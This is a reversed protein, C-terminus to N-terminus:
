TIHLNLNDLLKKTKKTFETLHWTENIKVKFIYKLHSLFDAVSFKSLLGKKRLLNYIKYNLMLSIHNIFAWTELSKENQMYSKDQELLNKLFDFSQEIEGREKYLFYIEKPSKSVNTKIAISGFKYQNEIFGDMSYGDINNEINKLYQKEENNKLDSDLFVVTEHVRYHWIPRENFMFYGDFDAKNGIKLKDSNFLSSNRKLPVIYKIGSDNLMNFNAESGFGKDAVVTADQLGSEVISLKFASIDRINGPIIRYYGPMKKECGFAYLLNIQPNYDGHANYGRRNINMKGSKSIIGTGDFLIHQNGSIFHKMFSVMKGRNGGFNRLFESLNKGSLKLDKFMESFFSNIYLHEVRKFPCHEIVRLSAITFILSGQEGFTKRLEDLIDAGLDSLVRPAGYTKATIPVEIKPSKEKPSILGEETIRGLYKNTIKQARGKEKNWISSVAYLYYRGGICSINTGKQKHRNVWEPYMAEEM